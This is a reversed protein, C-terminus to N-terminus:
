CFGSRASTRSEAHRRARPRERQSVSSCRSQYRQPVARFRLRINRQRREHRDVRVAAFACNASIQVLHPKASNASRPIRFKASAANSQVHPVASTAVYRLDGFRDNFSAIIPTVSVTREGGSARIFKSCVIQSRAANARLGNKPMYTRDGILIDRNRDSGM